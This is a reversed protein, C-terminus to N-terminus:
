KPMGTRQGRKTQTIIGNEGSWTVDHKSIGDASSEAVNATRISNFYANGDTFNETKGDITVTYKSM